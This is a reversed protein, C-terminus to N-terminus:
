AGLIPPRKGRSPRNQRKKPPDPNTLTAYESEAVKAAEDGLPSPPNDQAAIPLRTQASQLFVGHSALFGTVKKVQYACPKCMPVGLYPEDVLKIYCFNCLHGRVVQSTVM